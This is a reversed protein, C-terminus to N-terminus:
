HRLKIALINCHVRAAGQLLCKSSDGAEKVASPFAGRLLHFFHLYKVYTADCQYLRTEGPQRASPTTPSMVTEKGKFISFTNLNIFNFQLISTYPFYFSIFLCTYREKKWLKRQDRAEFSIQWANRINGSLSCILIFSHWTCEVNACGCALIKLAHPRVKRDDKQTNRWTMCCFRFGLPETNSNRQWYDM